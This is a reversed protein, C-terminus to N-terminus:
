VNASLAKGAATKEELVEAYMRAYRLATEEVTLNAKVYDYGTTGLFRLHDADGMLKCIADEIQKSNGIEVLYGGREGSVIVEPAIGVPTVVIPKKFALSETVVQCFSEALSPQIVIDALTYWNYSDVRWGAFVVTNEISLESCLERLRAEYPGTGVMVLKFNGHKAKIAPVANLLHDLGKEKNLRCCTLAVFNNRLGFETRIREVEEISADDVMALDTGYPSKLIKDRDVGQKLLLDVVEQTPVIIRDAYGNCLREIYLYARRKVGHTLVYIHDSYQHGIVFAPVGAMKAAIAGLVTEDFHHAQVIHPRFQKIKERLARFIRPHNKRAFPIDLCETEYRESDSYPGTRNGPKEVTLAAVEFRSKDLGTLVTDIFDYRNIVSAFHLVRIM